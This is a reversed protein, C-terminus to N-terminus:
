ARGNKLSQFFVFDEFPMKWVDEWTDTSERVYEDVLLYWGM